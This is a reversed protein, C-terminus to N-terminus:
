SEASIPDDELPTDLLNGRGKLILKGDPFGTAPVSTYASFKPIGTGLGRTQEPSLDVRMNHDDIAILRNYLDSKSFKVIKDSYIYVYVIVDTFDSHRALTGDDNRLCFQFSLNSGTIM